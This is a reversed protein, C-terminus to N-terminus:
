LTKNTDSGTLNISFGEKGISFVLVGSLILAAGLLTGSPLSENLTVYGFFLALVPTIFSTMSLLVVNMHKLLYFYIIFAAVSGFVALYIISLTPTTAFRVMKWNEFFASGILLTIGGFLMPILNIYVPDINKGYKKVSVAVSANLFSSCVVATMGEVTDVSGLKLDGWFIYVLGSFGIFIGATKRFTLRDNRLFVSSLIAAFFPMVAFTVATLGSALRQEAWYVLGYPISFSGLGVLVLFILERTDFKYKFKRVKLIILLIATAIMFRMGASFFPPFSYTSIKIGLWTTSWILCILLYGSILKLKSPSANM